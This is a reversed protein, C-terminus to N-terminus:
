CDAVFYYNYINAWFFIKQKESYYWWIVRKIKIKIIVYQLMNNFYISIMDFYNVICENYIVM